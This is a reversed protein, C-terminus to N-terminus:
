VDDRLHPPLRAQGREAHYQERYAASKRRHEAAEAIQARMSQEACAADARGAKLALNVHSRLEGTLTAPVELGCDPCEAKLPFRRSM